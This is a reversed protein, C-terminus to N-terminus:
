PDNGPDTLRTLFARLFGKLADPKDAAFQPNLIIRNCYLNVGHDAMLMVVIDDVPVGM